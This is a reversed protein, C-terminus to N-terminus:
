ARMIRAQSCLTDKGSMQQWRILSDMITDQFAHGMHLSGTVNPPPIVICFPDSNGTPAFTGEAEWKSYLDDEIASPDYPKNLDLRKM